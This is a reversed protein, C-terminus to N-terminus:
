EVIIKHLQWVSRSYYIDNKLQPKNDFPYIILLPGKTRIALTQGNARRALIPAFDVADSFPVQIEYNNLAMLNLLRGQAGVAQLLASLSPGTYTVPTTQWPSTTTLETVSLADLMAADFEAFNGANRQSINGGVTLLVPGTPKALTQAQLGITLTGMFFLVLFAQCVRLRNLQM